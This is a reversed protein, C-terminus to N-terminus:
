GIGGWGEREKKGGELFDFVRWVVALVWGKMGRGFPWSRMLTSTMVVGMELSVLTLLSWEQADPFQTM